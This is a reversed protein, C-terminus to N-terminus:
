LRSQNRWGEPHAFGCAAAVSVLSSQAATRYEMKRAIAAEAVRAGSHGLLEWVTRIDHGAEILHTAFSQRLTHTLAPRTLKAATVTRKIARQVTQEYMRHRRLIGSRPFPAKASTPFIPFFHRCRQWVWRWRVGCDMSGSASVRDAFTPKRPACATISRIRRHLQELLKLPRTGPERSPIFETGCKM